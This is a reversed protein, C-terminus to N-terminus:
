LFKADKETDSIEREASSVKQRNKPIQEGLQEAFLKM